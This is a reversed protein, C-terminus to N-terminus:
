DCLLTVQRNDGSVALHIEIINRNFFYMTIICQFILSLLLLLFKLCKVCGNLDKTLQIDVNAASDNLGNLAECFDSGVNQLHQTNLHFGQVPVTLIPSQTAIVM